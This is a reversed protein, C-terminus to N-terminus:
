NYIWKGRIASFLPIDGVSSAVVPVGSSMAELISIPCGERNTALVYVDMMQYFDPMQEPQLQGMFQVSDERM